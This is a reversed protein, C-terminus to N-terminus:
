WVLIYKYWICSESAIKMVSSAYFVQFGNGTLVIQQNCHKKLNEFLTDHHLM